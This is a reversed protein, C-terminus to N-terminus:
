LLEKGQKYYNYCNKIISLVCISNILKMQMPVLIISLLGVSDGM